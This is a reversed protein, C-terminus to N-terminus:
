MAMKWPSVCSKSPPASFEALEDLFLFVTSPSRSRVPCPTPRAAWWARPRFATTPFRSPRQTILGGPPLLGAVSYVRTVDLAEGPTLEPLIGPLRRALM